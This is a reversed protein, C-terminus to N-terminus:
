GAAAKQVLENFRDSKLADLIGTHANWEACNEQPEEGKYRNRLKEDEAIASELLRQAEDTRGVLALLIAKKSSSINSSLFPHALLSTYDTVQELLPLGYNIIQDVMMQTTEESYATAWFYWATPLKEKRYVLYLMEGATGSQVRYIGSAFQHYIKEVVPVHLAAVIGVQLLGTSPESKVFHVGALDYICPTRPRTWVEFKKSRREFGLPKLVAEVKNTIRQRLEPLPIPAHRPKPQITAIWPFRDWRVSPIAGPYHGFMRRIRNWWNRVALTVKTKLRTALNGM